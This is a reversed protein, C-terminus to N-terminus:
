IVWMELIFFMTKRTIMGHYRNLIYREDGCHFVSDEEWNDRGDGTERRGDGTERRGEGRGEGDGREERGVVADAAGRGLM